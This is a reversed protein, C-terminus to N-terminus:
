LIGEQNRMLTDVENYSKNGLMNIKDTKDNNPDEWFSELQEYNKIDRSELTSICTPSLLGTLNKIKTDGTIGELGLIANGGITDSKIGINLTKKIRWITNGNALTENSALAEKRRILEDKLETLEKMKEKLAQTIKANQFSESIKEKIGEDIDPKDMNELLMQIHTITMDAVNPTIKPTPKDFIAELSVLTKKREQRLKWVNWKCVNYRHVLTNVDIWQANSM